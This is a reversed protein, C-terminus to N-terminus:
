TKKKKNNVCNIITYVYYTKQIQINFLLYSTNTTKVKTYMSTMNHKKTCWKVDDVPSLSSSCSM